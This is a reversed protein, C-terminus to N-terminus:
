MQEELESLCYTGRGNLGNQIPNETEHLQFGILLYTCLSEQQDAMVETGTDM